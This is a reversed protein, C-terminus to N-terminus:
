EQNESPGSSDSGSTVSEDNTGGPSEQESGGSPPQEPPDTKKEEIADTFDYVVAGGEADWLADVDYQKEARDLAIAALAVALGADHELIGGVIAAPSLGCTSRIFHLERNTLDNMTPMEYEGDLSGVSKIVLKPM